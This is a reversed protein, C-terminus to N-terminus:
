MSRPKAGRAAVSLAMSCTDPGTIATPSTSLATNTGHAKIVPMVPWNKRCNARVIATDVSIEAYLENVKLGANVAMRSRGRSLPAVGGSGHTTKGSAPPKNPTAMANPPTLAIRASSGSM